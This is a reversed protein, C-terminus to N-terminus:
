IQNSRKHPPDMINDQLLLSGLITGRKNWAHLMLRLAFFFLVNAINYYLSQGNTLGLM